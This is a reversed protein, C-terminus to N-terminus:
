HLAHAPGPYPSQRLLGSRAPHTGPRCHKTLLITHHVANHFWDPENELILANSSGEERGENGRTREHLIEREVPRGGDRGGEDAGHGVDCEGDVEDAYPSGECPLRSALPLAQAEREGLVAGAEYTSEERGVKCSSRGDTHKTEHTDDLYTAKAPASARTVGGGGLAYGRKHADVAIINNAVKGKASEKGDQCGGCSHVRSCAGLDAFM